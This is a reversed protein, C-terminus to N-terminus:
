GTFFEVKEMMQEGSMGLFFKGAMLYLPLFHMVYM